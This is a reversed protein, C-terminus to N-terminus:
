HRGWPIASELANIWAPYNEEADVLLRMSNGGILPAGAARSFVQEALTRGPILASPPPDSSLCDHMM